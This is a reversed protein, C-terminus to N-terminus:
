ESKKFTEERVTQTGILSVKSPVTGTGAISEIIRPLTLEIGSPSPTKEAELLSVKKLTTIQQNKNKGGVERVCKKSSIDSLSYSM